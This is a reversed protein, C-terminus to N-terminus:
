HKLRLKNLTKWKNVHVGFNLIETIKRSLFIINEKSNLSYKILYDRLIIEEATSDYDNILEPPDLGITIEDNLPDLYKFQERVVSNFYFMSEEYQKIKYEIFDNSTPVLRGETSSQPAWVQKFIYGPLYKYTDTSWRDPWPLRFKLLASIPKIINYWNLQLQMDNSINEELEITNLKRYDATRIDSIFYVDNRNAWKQADMDTFFQNYIFIKPNNYIVNSFVAPDYLHFVFNPFLQSLFDTHIAPAAGAYVIIPNPIVKENVFLTFFQIESILLKRQGWHVSTKENKNRERYETSPSVDTILLDEEKLSLM